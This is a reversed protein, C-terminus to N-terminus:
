HIFIRSGIGICWHRCKRDRRRFTGCGFPKAFHVSKLDRVKSGQDTIKAHRCQHAPTTRPSPKLGLPSSFRLPEIGGETRKPYQPLKSVIKDNPASLEFNSFLQRCRCPEFRRPCLGISKLDMEKVVRVHQGGGM